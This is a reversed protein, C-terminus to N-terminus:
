VVINLYSGRVLPEKPPGDDADRQLLQDLRTLAAAHDPSEPRRPNATGGRVAVPEAPDQQAPRKVAPANGQITGAPPLNPPGNAVM